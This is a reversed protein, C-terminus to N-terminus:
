MEMANWNSFIIQPGDNVGDIKSIVDKWIASMCCIIRM